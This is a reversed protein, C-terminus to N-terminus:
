CSALMQSETNRAPMVKSLGGASCRWLVQHLNCAKMVVVCEVLYVRGQTEKVPLFASVCLNDRTRLVNAATPFFLFLVFHFLIFHFARWRSGDGHRGAFVM